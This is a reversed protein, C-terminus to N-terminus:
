VLVRSADSELRVLQGKEQVVQAGEGFLRELVEDTPAVPLELAGAKAVPRDVAAQSGLGGPSSEAVFPEGEALNPPDHVALLDRHAVCPAGVSTLAWGWMPARPLIETTWLPMM